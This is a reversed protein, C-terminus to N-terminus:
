MQEKDFIDPRYRYRKDTDTGYRKQNTMHVSLSPCLSIEVVLNHFSKPYFTWKYADTNRIQVMKIGLIQFSENRIRIWAFLIRIRTWDFFFKTGPFDLFKSKLFCENGICQM